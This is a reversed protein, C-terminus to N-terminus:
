NKGNELHGQIALISLQKYVRITIHILLLFENGGKIAENINGSCHPFHQTCLLIKISKLITDIEACAMSTRPHTNRKRQGSSFWYECTAVPVGDCQHLILPQLSVLLLVLYTKQCVRHGSIQNLNSRTLSTNVQPHSQTCSM